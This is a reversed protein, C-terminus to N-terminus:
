VAVIIIQVIYDQFNDKHISKSYTIIGSESANEGLAIIEIESSQFNRYYDIIQQNSRYNGSLEKGIFDINGFQAQIEAISKAVGELSGYIAQDADGVMFMKFNGYKAKNGMLFQVDKIIHKKLLSVKNERSYNGYPM